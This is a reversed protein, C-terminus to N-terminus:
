QPLHQLLSQTLAAKYQVIWKIANEGIAVRYGADEFLRNIHEIFLGAEDAVLIHDMFPETVGAAGIGTSVLPLGFALAELTKIKFGTGKREPNIAVDGLRYFDEPHDVEGKLVVNLHDSAFTRCISGGILLSASPHRELISPWCAEIFWELTKHNIVSDSAFYLLKKEFDRGPLPPFDPVYSYRIVETNSLEKFYAKENEQVAIVLDARDLAKREQDKYLSVWTPTVNNDVYVKFRDTFCDHTDLIKFVKDDFFTLSKSMFVYECIVANFHHKQHLQRILPIALSPFHIDAESNHKYQLANVKGKM